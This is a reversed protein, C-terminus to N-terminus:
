PWIRPRLLVVTPFGLWDTRLAVLPEVRSARRAPVYGALLAVASLLLACAALTATAFGARKRLLRAGYKLDQWFDGCAGGSRRRAAPLLCAKGSLTCFAGAAGWAVARSDPGPVRM